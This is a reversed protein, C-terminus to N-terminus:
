YVVGYDGKLDPIGSALFLELGEAVSEIAPSVAASENIVDRIGLTEVSQASPPVAEVLICSGGIGLREWEHTNSVLEVLLSITRHGGRLSLGPGLFVVIHHKVLSTRDLTKLYFVCKQFHGFSGQLSVSLLLDGHRGGDGVRTPGQFQVLFVM